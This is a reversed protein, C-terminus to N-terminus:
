NITDEHRLGDLIQGKKKSIIKTTAVYLYGIKQIPLSAKM